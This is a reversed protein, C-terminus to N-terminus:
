KLPVQTKILRDLNVRAISCFAGIFVWMDEVCRTSMVEMKSSGSIHLYMHSIQSVGFNRRKQEIIKVDWRASASSMNSLEERSREFSRPRSVAPRPSSSVIYVDVRM